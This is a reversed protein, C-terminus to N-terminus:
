KESGILKVRVKGIVNKYLEVRVETVGLSTVPATDIIKRKDIRIGQKALEEVIQKTSVSGFVRGDKGSNVKFDFTMDELKKALEKAEKELEAEHAAQEAKQDALIELSKNTEAVALGRAILFNRAYGDSVEVVEGKKGVKKVDQKLIVKM